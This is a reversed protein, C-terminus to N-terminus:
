TGVAISGRGRRGKEHDLMKESVLSGRLIGIEMLLM